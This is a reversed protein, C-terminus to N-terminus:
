TLHIPYIADILLGLVFLGGARRTVLFAWAVYWLPWLPYDEPPAEPPPRQYVKLANKRKTSQRTSTPVSPAQVSRTKAATGFSQFSSM